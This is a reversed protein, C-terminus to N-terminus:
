RQPTISFHPGFLVAVGARVGGPSEMAGREMWIFGPVTRERRPVGCTRGRRLVRDDPPGEVGSVGPLPDGRLLRPPDSVALAVEAPSHCGHLIGASGRMPARRAVVVLPYLQIARPRWCTSVVIRSLGRWHAPSVSSPHGLLAIPVLSACFVLLLFRPLPPSAPQVFARRRRRLRVRRRWPFGDGLRRGEGGGVHGKVEEGPPGLEESEPLVVGPVGSRDGRGARLIEPVLDLVREVRHRALGVARVRDRADGPDDEQHADRAVDGDQADHALVVVHLADGVRQQGVQGHPIKHEDEEAQGHHHEVLQGLRPQQPLEGAFHHGVHLYIYETKGERREQASQIHWPRNSTATTLCHECAPSVSPLRPEDLTM